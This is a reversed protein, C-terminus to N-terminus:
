LLIIAISNTGSLELLSRGDVKNGRGREWRWEM